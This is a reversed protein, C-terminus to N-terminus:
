DSEIPCCTCPHIHVKAAGGVGFMKWVASMDCNLALNLPKCGALTFVSDPPLGGVAKTSLLHFREFAQKFECYIDKTENQM